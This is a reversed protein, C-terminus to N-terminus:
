DGEKADKRAKATQMTVKESSGAPALFVKWGILALVIIVAAVIGAMMGPSVEKKM